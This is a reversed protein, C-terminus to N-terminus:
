QLCLDLDKVLPLKKDNDSVVPDDLPWEVGLQEDNWRVGRASEPRFETTMQYYLETKDELTQFGHAVGKPIYLARRNESSLTVSFWNLFTASEPRMDVIVDYVSGAICRVLKEEQHPSEQFHLGRITGKRLNHSISQQVFEGALGYRAAESQCWTRAFFGRFDELPDIDIIYAGEIPTGDYRM